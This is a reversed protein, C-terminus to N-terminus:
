PRGRNSLLIIRNIEVTEVIPVSKFIGTLEM